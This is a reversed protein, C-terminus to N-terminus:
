INVYFVNHNFNFIGIDLCFKLYFKEFLVCTKDYKGLFIGIFKSLLMSKDRCKSLVKLINELNLKKDNLEEFASVIHKKIISYCDKITLTQMIQKNNNYLEILKEHPKDKDDDYPLFNFKGYWTDGTQLTKLLALQINQNNCPYFSVDVLTVKNINFVHKNEKLFKMTLKLMKTGIKPGNKVCNKFSSLNSIHAVKRKRLILISVCTFDKKKSYLSYLYDDDHKEGEMVYESDEFNVNIKLPLAGGYQVHRNTKTVFDLIYPDLKYSKVKNLNM